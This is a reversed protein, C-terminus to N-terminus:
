FISYSPWSSLIKLDEYSAFDTNKRYLLDNVTFYLILYIIALGCGAMLALNPDIILILTSIALIVSGVSIMLMVPM